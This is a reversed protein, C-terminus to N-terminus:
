LYTSKRKFTKDVEKKDRREEKRSRTFTRPYGRLRVLRKNEKVVFSEDEEKVFMKVSTWCYHFTLYGEDFSVVVVPIGGTTLPTSKWTDTSNNYSNPDNSNRDSYLSINNSVDRSLIPHVLSQVSIPFSPSILSNIPTHRVPDVSICVLISLIVNLPSKGWNIGKSSTCKVSTVELTSRKLKVFINLYM